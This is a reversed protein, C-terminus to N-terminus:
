KVTGDPQESARRLSPARRPRPPTEFTMVRQQVTRFESETDTGLAAVAKDALEDAEREHAGSEQMLQPPAFGPQMYLACMGFITTTSGVQRRIAHNRALHAMVHALTHAFQRESAASRIERTSFFVYGAPFVAVDARATDSVVTVIYSFSAAPLHRALRDSLRQVYGTIEPDDIAANEQRYDRALARGLAVEKAPPTEQALLVTAVLLVIPALKM